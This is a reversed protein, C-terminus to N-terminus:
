TKVLTLDLSEIIDAFRHFPTINGQFNIILDHFEKWFRMYIIKLIAKASEVSIKSNSRGLIFFDRRDEYYITYLDNGIIISDLPRYMLEMSINKLASIFGGLLDHDLETEPAYSFLKVGTSKSFIWIEKIDGMPYIVPEVTWLAIVMIPIFNSKNTTGEMMWAMLKIKM